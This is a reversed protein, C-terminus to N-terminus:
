RRCHLSYYYSHYHYRHNFLNGALDYFSKIYVYYSHGATLSSQPVLQVRRGQESLVLDTAVRREETHNYLYVTHSSLTTPDIPESVRFEIVANLPVDKANHTPTISEVSGRQTDVTAGTTFLLTQQQELLNGSLDEILNISLSYNSNAELSVRPQLTVVLRDASISRTVAVNKGDEDTLVLNTLSLSNIAEDFRVNLRVNLPVDSWGNAVSTAVVVPGDNDATFATTFVSSTSRLKNGFLDKIQDTLNIRYQRGVWYAADPIFNLTQNNNLWNLAGDVRQNTVTDTIYFANNDVTAPDIRESFVATVLTNVAVRGRNSPPNIEVTPAQTDITNGTTFTSEVTSALSNGARDKIGSIRVTYSTHDELLGNPTFLLESGDGILQLNGAIEVTGEELLM